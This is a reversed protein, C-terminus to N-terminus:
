QYNFKLMTLILIYFVPFLLISVSQAIRIFYETARIKITIEKVQFESNISHFSTYFSQCINSLDIMLYEEAPNFLKNQM